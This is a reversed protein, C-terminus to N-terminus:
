ANDIRHTLLEELLAEYADVSMSVTGNIGSRFVAKSPDTEGAPLVWKYDINQYISVESNIGFLQKHSEKLSEERRNKADRLAPIVLEEHEHRRQQEAREAKEREDVTSWAVEVASWLGYIEKPSALTVIEQGAENIHKVLFKFTKAGQPSPQLLDPNSALNAPTEWGHFTEQYKTHSVLQVKIVDQKRCREISRRSQHVYGSQAVLVDTLNLKLIDKVLM